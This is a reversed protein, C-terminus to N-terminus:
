KIYKKRYMAAIVDTNHGLYVIPITNKGNRIKFRPSLFRHYISKNKKACLIPIFTYKNKRIRELSQLVLNATAKTQYVKPLLKYVAYPNNIKSLKHFVDNLIDRGTQLQSVVEDITYSRKKVEALFLFSIQQSDPQNYIVLCDNKQINKDTIFVGDIRFHLVYHKGADFIIRRRERCNTPDCLSSLLKEITYM